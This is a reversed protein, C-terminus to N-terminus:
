LQICPANLLENKASIFLDEQACCTEMQKQNKKEDRAHLEIDQFWNEDSGPNGKKMSEM